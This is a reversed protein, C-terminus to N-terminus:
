RDLTNELCKLTMRRWFLKEPIPGAWDPLINPRLRGPEAEFIKRGLGAWLIKQVSDTWGPALYGLNLVSSIRIRVYM